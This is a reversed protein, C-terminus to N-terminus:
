MRVIGGSERGRDECLLKVDAGLCHTPYQSTFPLGRLVLTRAHDLPFLFGSLLPDLLAPHFFPHPVNRGLKLPILSSFGLCYLSGVLTIPASSVPIPLPRPLDCPDIAIVLKGQLLVVKLTKSTQGAPGDLLLESNAYCAVERSESHSFAMTICREPQMRRERM